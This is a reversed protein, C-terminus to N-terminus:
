ARIWCCRESQQLLLRARSIMPSILPLAMGVAYFRANDIPILPCQKRWTLPILAFRLPYPLSEKPIAGPRAPLTFQGIAM